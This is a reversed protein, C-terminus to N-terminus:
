NYPPDSPDLESPLDCSPKRQEQRDTLFIVVVLIIIGTVISADAINFTYWWGLQIFDVVYGFMVRDTLNGIAGGVQLGLSITILRGSTQQSRYFFLLVAIGVLSAIALFLTQNTFLGFASGTNTVFHIQFTGTPPISQGPVMYRTVLHKTLQDIFLVFAVLLAFGWHRSSFSLIRLLSQQM